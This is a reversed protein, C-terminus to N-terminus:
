EKIFKLSRSGNEGSVNVIYLGKKLEMPLELAIKNAGVHITNNYQSYVLVGSMDYMKINTEFVKESQINLYLQDQVLTPTLLMESVYTFDADEIGTSYDHQNPNFETWDTAWNTSGFAGRYSVNEFFPDALRASTFSAGALLPSSSLPMLNPNLLTPSTLQLASLNAIVQNSFTSTYFWTTLGSLWSSSSAVALDTQCNALITNRMQLSDNGASTECAAGDLLLGVPYGIIVSNFVSTRSNRRIHAGRKYLSNFSAATDTQRPGLITVNSYTATTYPSSFTGSGDNDSEFGNSGSVDAVAPDRVSFAFQVHGSYGFDTDFDDDLARYACIHKLNVTGGFCEFADDGSYSVMVYDITTGSGVGGLTLGNIENNVTYAIGPYEIRVYKLVGSNDAANTGGYKGDNDANDVGGEIIGVGGIVNIPAQGLLIIGGWDGYTRSGVPQDSTFVIPMTATGEAMIKAGRTVVLSGKTNKEGKIVTGAEITLTAGPKVYVFGSLLYTNSNTWSTNSSINGSVVIEAAFIRSFSCLVIALLLVKKM